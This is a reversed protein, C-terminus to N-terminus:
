QVEDGVGVYLLRLSFEGFRFIFSRKVMKAERARVATCAAGTPTHCIREDGFVDAALQDFQYDAAATGSSASTHCM